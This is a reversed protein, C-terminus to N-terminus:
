FLKIGGRTQDSVWSSNLSHHIDAALRGISVILSSLNESVLSHDLGIIDVWVCCPNVLIVESAISIHWIIEEKRPVILRVNSLSDGETLREHVVGWDWTCSLISKNGQDHGDGSILRGLLVSPDGETLNDLLYVAAAGGLTFQKGLTVEERLAEFRHALWTVQKNRVHVLLLFLLPSQHEAQGIDEISTAVSYKSHFLSCDYTSWFLSSKMM